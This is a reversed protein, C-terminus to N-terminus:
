LLETPAATLSILKAGIQGLPLIFDVDGTRIAADPMAFYESSAEDQAIVTGGGRKVASVGSAGDLGTGTLVVAIARGGFALAASEFLADAAPRVYHVLKGQTLAIQDDTGAVLHRDPPAVYVVGPELRDGDRAERVRLATHRGLLQALISPNRRDLHLVVMVAGPFGAPLEGLVRQLARLGGASAAVAVVPFGSACEGPKVGAHLAM